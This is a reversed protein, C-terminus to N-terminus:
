HVPERAAPTAELDIHELIAILDIETLIGLLVNRSDVVPLCGYKGKRMLRAAACISAEPDIVAVDTAMADEIEIKSLHERQEISGKCKELCSLSARLLDRHTILGVVRNEADVVPVHRCKAWSMVEEAILLKRDARVTFVDKTMYNRVQMNLKEAYERLRSSPALVSTYQLSM